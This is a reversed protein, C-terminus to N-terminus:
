EALLVRVDSHARAARAFRADATLLAVDTALTEALALYVADYASFNERLAWTRPLVPAHSHREIPLDLLDEVAELGRAEPEGGFTVARRLAHLVEIDLLQPAHLDFGHAVLRQGVHGAAPRGLVLEVVASADLVLM